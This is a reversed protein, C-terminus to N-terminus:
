GALRASESLVRGAAARVLAFGEDPTMPREDFGIVSITVLRGNVDLLARWYDDSMGPLKGASTDRLRIYLVDDATRVDFVRVTDARGSRSLAVRGPESLFYDPLIPQRSAIAQVTAPDSSVVVTMIGPIEPKKADPDRAISACSGLLVFAKVGDQSASPDICYGPPGGVVVARESVAIVEPASRGVDIGGTCGALALGAAALLVRSTWTSM